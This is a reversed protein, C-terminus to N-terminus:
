FDDMKELPRLVITERGPFKNFNNGFETIESVFVDAPPIVHVLPHTSNPTLLYLL